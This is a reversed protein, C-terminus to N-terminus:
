ISILGDRLPVIEVREGAAVAPAHPPRIVLCDARALNALMSSDQRPFPTAVAEGNPGYGLSSRLYDERKDNAPLDRGLKATPNPRSATEIGLMAALAPRLFIVACVGCSVPNGPLGILPTKGYHGFILPKGPRMAIKWFGLDLGHEGLASRVLDYDGVSAGGSTVILDASRGAELLEALAAPEDRAIGLNWANGGVAQIYAGLAVSNSSVIQDPGLPDGPLVIENGTAIVAVRPRRRVSLWPVNMAAALGIDRGSLVKGAKLLVEGATFDLGAPRVWEGSKAALRVTVAAGNAETDEQIVIADAGLPLAAGTFIRVCEGARIAGAFSKGASSEGILRLTVPAVAADASRVAYGDMASVAAPPHTTRAAVDEALVRGLGDALMVQESSLERMASVIRSRAEAVALM